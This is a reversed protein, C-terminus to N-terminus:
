YADHVECAAARPCLPREYSHYGGELQWSSAVFEHARGGDVMEHFFAFISQEVKLCFNLFLKLCWTGHLGECSPLCPSQHPADGRGSGLAGWGGWEAECQGIHLVRDRPDGCGSRGGAWLSGGCASSGAIHPEVLPAETGGVGVGGAVALCFRFGSCSLIERLWCVCVRTAGPLFERGPLNRWWDMCAFVRWWSIWIAAVEFDSKSIRSRRPPGWGFWVRCVFSFPGRLYYVYVFRRLHSVWAALRCVRNAGQRM